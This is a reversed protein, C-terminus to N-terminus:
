EYQIIKKKAFEIPDSVCHAGPLPSSYDGPIAFDAFAPAWLSFVPHKRSSPSDELFSVALRRIDFQPASEANLFPDQM